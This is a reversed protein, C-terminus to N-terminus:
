ARVIVPLGCAMAEAPPLAFADDLSPGVYCDAAAYYIEIDARPPLFLVQSGLRLTAIQGRFLRADDRGVVLVRLSPDGLRAVATLICALGKNKWDNGVLLLAFLREPLGFVMR